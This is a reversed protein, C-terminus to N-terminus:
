RATAHRRGPRPLLGRGAGAAGRGPHAGAGWRPTGAPLPGAGPAGAPTACRRVAPSRRARPAGGRCPTLGSRRHGHPRLLLVACWWCPLVFSVLACWWLRDPARGSRGELAPRGRILWGHLRVSSWAGSVVLDRPGAAPRVSLLGTGPLARTCSSAFSSPTSLLATSAFSLSCPSNTFDAEDVTSAGTARRSRSAYEPSPAGAARGVGRGGVGPGRGIAGDAGAAAVGAGCAGAEWAGAAGAGAAWADGPGTAWAGAVGPTRGPGRGLPGVGPGRGVGCGAACGAAWCGATCCGVAPAGAGAAFRGAPAGRGDAPGPPGRGAAPAPPGRGLGPMIGCRGLGPM